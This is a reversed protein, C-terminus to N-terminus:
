HIDRRRFALYAFGLWVASMVLSSTISAAAFGHEFDTIYIMVDKGDVFGMKYNSFDTLQIINSIAFQHNLSFDANRSVSCLMTVVMIVGFSMYGIIMSTYCNKLLFTLFVYFCTIRMIALLLMAFRTLINALSVNSGWGFFLTVGGFPIVTLAICGIFVMAFSLLVRSFFVTTRNYGSLIEYNITKDMFDWGCIRCTFFLPIIIFLLIHNSSLCAITFLGGNMETIGSISPSLNGFDLLALGISIVSVILTAIDHKLQFTQAKILNLM